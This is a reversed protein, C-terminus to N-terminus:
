RGFVFRYYVTGNCWYVDEVTDQVTTVNKVFQHFVLCHSDDLFQRLRLNGSWRSRRTEQQVPPADLGLGQKRYSRVDSYRRIVRDPFVFDNQVPSGGGVAVVPTQSLSWDTLIAAPQGLDNLRDFAWVLHCERVATTQLDVPDTFVYDIGAHWVIGGIELRRTANNLARGQDTATDGIRDDIQAVVTVINQASGSGDPAMFNRFSFNAFQWRAPRGVKFNTVARRRSRFKSFSRRSRSRARFM